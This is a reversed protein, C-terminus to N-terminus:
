NMSRNISRYLSLDYHSLQVKTKLIVLLLVGGRVSEEGVDYQIIHVDDEGGDEGDLTHQLYDGEVWLNSNDEGINMRLWACYVPFNRM